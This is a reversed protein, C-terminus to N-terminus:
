ISSKTNLLPVRGLKSLDLYDHPTALIALDYSNSLPVSNEGDWKKVLDDHWYVDAGKSRLGTILAKVSTERVDSINPKYAVGVVLIKKASLGGLREEALEVFYGPMKQNIRDALDIFETPAGIERAKNALYLPDVPICHGGVGIGPYFPMFGYPKTSAANVVDMINIGLNKCFMSLENVFSINIYRFSNELLKATEAVEFSPCEILENVFKAYFTKASDISGQNMGSILKPVNGLNWKKNGPDIREPSYAVMFKDRALNSEKELIPVIINRITGPEVTSEIIVLAGAKLVKAVGSTAELLYTLDPKRSQSIPTPVCIVIIDSNNLSEVQNHASLLKNVVLNRVRVSEIDEVYSEYAKIQKVKRENTDFGCVLYGSEAAFVATPLGVYGLGVVGVKNM